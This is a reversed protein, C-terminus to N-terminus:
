EQMEKFSNMDMYRLMRNTDDSLTVPCTDEDDVESQHNSQSETVAGIDIPDSSPVVIESNVITVGSKVMQDGSSLSMQNEISESSTAKDRVPSPSVYFNVVKIPDKCNSNAQFLDNELLLDALRLNELFGM